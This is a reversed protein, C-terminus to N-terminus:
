GRGQGSGGGGFGPLLWRVPPAFRGTSQGRQSPAMSLWDKQPDIGGWGAPNGANDNAGQLFSMYNWNPNQAVMGSYQDFYNGQEGRLWNGFPNRKTLQPAFATNFASGWNNRLYAQIMENTIADAM